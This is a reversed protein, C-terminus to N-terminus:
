ELTAEHVIDVNGSMVRSLPCVEAAKKVYEAFKAQEELGQVEGKVSLHMSEVRFGIEDKSIKCSAETRLNIPKYNDATLLASLQMTFCGAHAAALLEEPNTGAGQEFRTQFSYPASKLAGSEVSVAGKGEKITGQWHAEAKRTIM